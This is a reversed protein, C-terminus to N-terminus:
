LGLGGLSGFGLCRFLFLGSVLNTRFGLGLRRLSWFGLCRFLFLGSGLNTRPPSQLRGAQSGGSRKSGASTPSSREM